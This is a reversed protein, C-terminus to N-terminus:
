CYTYVEFNNRGTSFQNSYIPQIGLTDNQSFIFM